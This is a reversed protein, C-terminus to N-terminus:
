SRAVRSAAREFVLTALRDAEALTHEKEGSTDIVFDASKKKEDFSLQAGVKRRAEEDTCGDRKMLRAIQTAPDCGVVVFLDFRPRQGTEILLAAETIVAVAGQAALVAVRKAEDERIKPHIIANLRERAARDRFVVAGLKKRDVEGFAGLIADGFEALVPEFASGGRLLVEHGVKDLDIVPLGREQLRKAVTSKGSAISGTLGVRYPGRAAGM